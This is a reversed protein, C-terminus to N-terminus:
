ITNDHPPEELYSKLVRCEKVRHFKNALSLLTERASTYEPDDCSLSCFHYAFQAALKLDVKVGLSGCWLPISAYDISAGTFDANKLSSAHFRAGHFDTSYCNARELNVYHLTTYRMQAYSLNAGNLWASTFNSYSCDSYSLDVNHFKLNSLNYGLLVLREGQSHDALWLSHLKLREHLETQTITQM